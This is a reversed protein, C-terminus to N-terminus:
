KEIHLSLTTGCRGCRRGDLSRRSRIGYGGNELTRAPCECFYRYPRSSAVREAAEGLPQRSREVRVDKMGAADLLRRFTQKWDPGHGRDDFQYYAIYHAMEHLLTVRMDRCDASFIVTSIRIQPRFRYKIEGRKSSAKMLDWDFSESGPVNYDLKSNVQQVLEDWARKPTAIDM